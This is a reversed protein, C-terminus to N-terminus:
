EGHALLSRQARGNRSKSLYVFHSTCAREGPKYKLKKQGGAMEVKAIRQWLFTRWLFMEVGRSSGVRDLGVGHAHMHVAGPHDTWKKSPRSVRRRLLAAEKKAVLLDMRRAQERFSRSPWTKSVRGIPHSPIPHARLHLPSPM